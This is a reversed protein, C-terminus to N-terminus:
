LNDIRNKYKILKLKKQKNLMRIVGAFLNKSFPQQSGGIFLAEVQILIQDYQLLNRLKVGSM